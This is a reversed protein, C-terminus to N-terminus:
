FAAASPRWAAAPCLFCRLDAPAAAKPARAHPLRAGGATAALRLDRLVRVVVSLHIGQIFLWTCRVFACAAWACAMGKLRAQNALRQADCPVSERDCTVRRRAVVPAAALRAQRSSVKRAGGKAAARTGGTSHANAAPVRTQFRYSCDSFPISPAAFARTPARAFRANTIPSSVCVQRLPYPPSPHTHHPLLHLSHRTSQNSVPPQTQLLALSQGQLCCRRHRQAHHRAAAIRANTPVICFHLSNRLPCTPTAQQMRQKAHETLFLPSAQPSSTTAVITEHSISWDCPETSNPSAPSPAGASKSISQTIICPLKLPAATLVQPLHVVSSHM